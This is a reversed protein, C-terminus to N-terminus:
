STAPAHQWSERYADIFEQLFATARPSVGDFYESDLMWPQHSFYNCVKLDRPTYTLMLTLRPNDAYYRGRHLGASNFVVADGARQQLRLANPMGGERNHSRDDACRIYYEAPSDYRGPSYPVYELDDNDVLAIQFQIGGMERKSVYAKVAEEDELVFQHDRHWDGETRGARPNFFLSTTFFLSPGRFIHEVPGLCRPDAVTELLTKLHKKDRPHWRPDILHRMSIHTNASEPATKEADELFQDRVYTCAERLRILEEGEFIAPYFLLGEDLFTQAPSKFTNLLVGNM